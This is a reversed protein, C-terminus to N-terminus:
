EASSALSPRSRFRGIAGQQDDRRRWYCSGDDGCRWHGNRWNPLSAGRIPFAERVTAIAKVPKRDQVFETTGSPAPEAASQVCDTGSRIRRCQRKGNGGCSCDVDEDVLQPM